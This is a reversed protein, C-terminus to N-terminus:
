FCCWVNESAQSELCLSFFFLLINALTFLVPSSDSHPSCPRWDVCLVIPMLPMSHAPPATKELSSCVILQGILIGSFVFKPLIIYVSGATNKFCIHICVYVLMCYFFSSSAMFKFSHLSPTHSPKTIFPSLPFSTRTYLRLFFSLLCM